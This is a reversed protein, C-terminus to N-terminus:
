LFTWNVIPLSCIKRLTCFRKIKMDSTIEDRAFPCRRRETLPYQREKRASSVRFTEDKDTTRAIKGDEGRKPEESRRVLSKNGGVRM